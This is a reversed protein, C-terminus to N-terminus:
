LFCPYRLEWNITRPVEHLTSLWEIDLVSNMDCSWPIDSEPDTPYMLIEFAGTTTQNTRNEFIAEGELYREATLPALDSPIKDAPVSQGISLGIGITLSLTSTALTSFIIAHFRSRIKM